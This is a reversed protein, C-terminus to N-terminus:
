NGLMGKIKDGAEGASDMKKKADIMSRLNKVQSMVNDPLGNMGEVQALAKDALDYKNEDLYKKAEDILPQAKAMMESSAADAQEKAQEGMQEAQKQASEAAETAQETAQETAEETSMAPTAASDGSPAPASSSSSGQDCGWLMLAAGTIALWQWKQITM